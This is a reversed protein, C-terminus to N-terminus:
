LGKAQGNSRSVPVAAMSFRKRKLCKGPDHAFRRAGIPQQRQGPEPGSVQAGSQALAANLGRDELEEDSVLRVKQGGGVREFYRRVREDRRM